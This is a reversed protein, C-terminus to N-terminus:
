VLKLNSSGRSKSAGGKGGGEEDDLGGPTWGGHMKEFLEGRERAAEATEVHCNCVCEAVLVNMAKARLAAGRMEDIRGQEAVRRMFAHAEKSPIDLLSPIEQRSVRIKRKAAFAGLAATEEAARTAEGELKRDFEERTMGSRALFQEMSLKNDKLATEVGFMISHRQREVDAPAVSQELRRVLMDLCMEPKQQEADEEYTETILSEIMERLEAESEVGFNEQLWAADALDKTTGGKQELVDELADEVDQPTAHFHVLTIEVPEYSSLTYRPKGDVMSPQPKKASM